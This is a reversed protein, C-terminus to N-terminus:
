NVFRLRYFRHTGNGIGNTLSLNQGAGTVPTGVPLWNTSTLDDTYELQYNQGLAAPFNLVLNTGSVEVGLPVPPPPVNASFSFNDIALGQGRSTTDTMQWVLWLAAGPPWDTIPQNLASLPTQNAPLTGDVPVGGSDSAVTPIAVNLNTLLGTMTDPFKNTGTLDVYYYCQLTKGVNSQRWVESTTQINVRSLTLGTDNIFRAGFATGGTTSTALLGLARGSGSSNPGFSLQGGTTQDGDTAGFKSSLMGSGYWGALASIGLGGTGSSAVVPFAFDYPNALSYTVGNITVPNATNVSATGPDPLSDFNQLYTSGATTYNIFSPPPTATGNNAAGPTPQFFEQRNFSQGDPLSGYSDNPNINQYDVYDLVQSQGNLLRTLALSGSGSTLSCNAHLENSTALNTQADAFIIQFQGASIVANTPFAWQLLNTYNNALYLGNLSVSNTGPNYIELWPVHQGARNTIGTLNDAELENIWLTPFPVLSVTVSNAAAPTASIQSGTPPAPNVTAVIGSGSLRVTLPGGNTNQLYWFSITYTANATLAPSITQYIASSQTSGPATSVLHLSANGSHKISTSLASGSLNPSVTFPGPFGSEFNGDPLLNPGVAPTSGAVLNIDDIYVDGASQLYIYILSSSSTGTASFFTWQPTPPTNPNTSIAAWNGARWNDQHSDILQLSAGTGEANTPWPLRNEYKVETVTLNNSTTLALTGSSPLTGTFTDFVPVTAGYAGAFDAFTAGLVLYNTPGIISGSPFIYSLAPINWGSLDFATNTSNNYLEIYQAGTITPDYMIENIVIQGVPSINTTNYVISVSNTDGAIPLGNRGIGTLNFQNIGKQLPVSILFNSVTTWKLPYPVGNIWIYDVNFPAQGTIYAVNNTVTINPNASFNTANAAAVQAAVNPAAQDMFPILNLNPDEVDLGNATFAAYKANLLPISNALNLPGNTVLEGLARWYMRVFTPESYMASLGSDALHVFLDQGPPFSGDIGLGINFDFMMLSWKQTAAGVYAYLNQGSQSGFCDWNGAAHNAAFVRMWNEMDALNELNHVYNPSNPNNAADVLSFLNTDDNVSDATRRNEFNWRYRALKKAGGTTTYPVLMAEAELADPQAYGSAFPAFEFYRAVKYLYGDADNPYYEDVMDGDPTQADEMLAGRRTGNVYVAVYRRNLWPVGLARLFTNALQERQITPDNATNGPYHIKNFSTAGLFKDDDNFIWKYSCLTGNATDYYQHVPSGAFHAQANYIVRTGNVMTADIGENSLNGLNAWRTLNAQTLWLHYVSFSGGPNGDGFMVLCERTPSNDALLAPFRSATTNSDTASIYFAVMTNAAQGPITASFVGDGAVADGNTGADNMAVSTYTPSPDIRYNLVLNKIGDPDHVYATVVAPQNPAPVPPFHTVNYIAPGANTVAHSNAVGPTGLNTPVPLPGTAELWGGNLRLIAEPWGRLWRAKFRLTARQGGALSNANLSVQCSNDGNYYRDSNRIHLSHSSQYGSNELSSRIHDGQLNWNGLGNEFDPTSVYNVGNTDDVEVNDILCEGVDLTAVQAYGISSSYNFGNDLVATNEINTWSSKQTEDSDAWNAALRHNAHPDILELSSGGAHAWEGWRGGTGYTVQDEPVLIATNGNLTQPMSLVLLEGSHSLKGSYNGVTNDSTLNTYRAFLNTLNRAVVLYGNPAITVAPFTFTIGSTFQWGTLNIASVGKNYLEIYQDDDNGSIPDYMLENIVIDGILINGNNTGPTRASLNYFDNAGDPWRGYSVGDSTATYQVADLLRSGDSSMFYLTGSAGNLQFGLQTENLTMFGGAALATGAPLVCKNSQTDDTVICGSIDNSQGSHNYLEIYRPISLNESHALVENIVVRGFLNASLREVTGPSGGALVSAGWARPDGEGYTPSSLVLSHGTGDTGIPWPATNSYPVTLLIAGHEDILQLTETKKLSGTYPGMVNTIGYVSTIDAPAAAVVMFSNSGITTGVPFQYSMDACTLTYGGIDHYWPNSNYIEIYELNKGDTRPAPKYMIESIAIPTTRSSPGLPESTSQISDTSVPTSDASEGTGSIASVVYYYTNTPSATTDTFSTTTNTAIIAYNGLTTSRKVHYATTGSSATWNLVLEGNQVQLFLGTPVPPPINYKQFLTTEASQRNTATLVTNYIQVEGIDGSLFNGLTQQAGLVLQAPATLSDSNGASTGILVGDVYLSGIGSSRQRTFTMVHPKGDNYGGGSTVAVDPNGTGACISGDAFLCTGFDDVVGGVEGNVLGAGQYFLTGSSLGQTSQFACIITYDDQVPRTFALHTSNASNFRVVPSGNMANTVYSPDQATTAQTANYGNGSVDTWSALAAGSSVGTIRDARFWAVPVLTATPLGSIALSSSTPVGMGTGTINATGVGIVPLAITTNTVGTAFVVNTSAVVSTEDSTLTVTFPGSQSAVAPISVQVNVTGGAAVIAPNAALSIPAIGQYLNQLYNCLAVGDVTANNYVRVEALSGPFANGIAANVTSILPIMKTGNSNTPAIITLSTFQGTQIGDVYLTMTGAVGNVQMVATHCTNLALPSSSSQLGSDGSSRGIGAYIGEGIRVGSGGWSIGWDPQGTGSIDYGFIIQSNYYASSTTPGAASAEFTVAITYNFLGTPANTAPISFGGNGTTGSSRTVGRHTGFANAVALPAPSGDAAAVTGKIRDTWNNGSVYDDGV